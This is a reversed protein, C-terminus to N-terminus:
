KWKGERFKKSDKYNISGIKIGLVDSSAKARKAILSNLKKHERENLRRKGKVFKKVAQNANYLREEKSKRKFFGM